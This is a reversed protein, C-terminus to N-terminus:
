FLKAALFTVGSFVSWKGSAANLGKSFGLDLTMAPSVSYSAAVLAQSTSGSGGQHTGSLEGVVGWQPTLNRSLAAAWGQQWRSTAEDVFGLHTTSLNIDTHWSDGFDSSYIGNITENTHGDNGLGSRATPFLAGLELGFASADNVEFRRKLVIGTDGGGRLSSGDANRQRVIADGGIRVGWDPTFALKFTYPLSERRRPDDAGTSQVGAEIELWGPASLAAPTSVSPRYPTVTPVDDANARGSGILAGVAVLAIVGIHLRKLFCARIVPHDM